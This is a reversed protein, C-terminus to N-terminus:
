AARARESVQDDSLEAGVWVTARKAGAGEAVEYLIRCEVGSLGGEVMSTPHMVAMPAALYPIGYDLARLGRRLAEVAPGYEGVLLRQTTFAEQADVSATRGSEIHRLLFRNPQIRVYVTSRLIGRLLSM